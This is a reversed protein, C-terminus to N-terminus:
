GGVEARRDLAHEGLVRSRLPHLDLDDVVAGAVIERGVNGAEVIPHSQKVALRVVEAVDALKLVQRRPSASPRM